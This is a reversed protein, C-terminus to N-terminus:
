TQTPASQSTRVVFNGLSANRLLSGMCSQMTLAKLRKPFVYHFGSDPDEGAGQLPRQVKRNREAATGM